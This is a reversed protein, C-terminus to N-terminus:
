SNTEAFVAFIHMMSVSVSSRHRVSPAVVLMHLNRVPLHRVPSLIALFMTRVMCVLLHMIHSSFLSIRVIWQHALLLALWRVLLQVSQLVLSVVLEVVLWLVLFVVLLVAFLGGLIALKKPEAGVKTPLWKM